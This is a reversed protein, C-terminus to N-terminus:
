GDAPVGPAAQWAPKAYVTSAGGSTAWLGNGGAALASKNWAGEPIYSLASALTAPDNTPSWYAAPDDADMFETGGVCVDSPTSGLGNVGPGSGSDGTPGSCGAAGADGSAVVSTIGQAAAQAWLNAYFTNKAAGMASECLGFSTSMVPALNHGVIYQASLDVGDTAATNASVVLEIEAHPAVAGSWEADLDAELQNAAIVGPDLGNVVIELHNPPLGFFYRFSNVDDAM